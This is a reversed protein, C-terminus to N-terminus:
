LKRFQVQLHSGVGFWAGLYSILISLGKLLANNFVFGESSKRGNNRNLFAQISGVIAQYDGAKKVSVVQLGNQELLILISKETYNVFHIPAGLFYWYRGFIRSAFSEANPVCVYGIEGPKLIASVKNFVARPDAMHEMAHNSHLYDFYNQNLEVSAFDGTVIKLGSHGGVSSGYSSIDTGWAEFGLSSMLGVVKGAGCGVDIFSKKDDSKPPMWWMRDNLYPLLLFYVIGDKISGGDDGVVYNRNRKLWRTKYKHFRSPSSPDDYAYYDNAEYIESADGLSLSNYKGIDEKPMYLAGCNVCRYVDYRGKINYHIDRVGELHLLGGSLCIPCNM